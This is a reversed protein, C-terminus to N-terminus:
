KNFVRNRDPQVSGHQHTRNTDYEADVIAALLISDQFLNRRFHKTFTESCLHIGRYMPLYMPIEKTPM